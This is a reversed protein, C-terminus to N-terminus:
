LFFRLLSCAVDLVPIALDGNESQQSHLDRTLLGREGALRMASKHQEDRAAEDADQQQAKALGGARVWDLVQQLENADFWIGHQKCSDVIVGSQRGYNRRNMLKGCSPCKRYLRGDQMAVDRLPARQPPRTRWDVGLAEQSANSVMKAFADTAIWLGACRNCEMVARDSMQRKTLRAGKGCAPCPLSTKEMDLQECQLKSGCHCCVTDGNRQPAGCAPCLMAVFQDATPRITVVTGCQCRFRSGVPRRGVDYRRRCRLCAVIHSMRDRGLSSVQFETPHAKGVM